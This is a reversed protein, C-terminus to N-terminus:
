KTPEVVLLPRVKSSQLLNRREKYWDPEPVDLTETSWRPTYGCQVLYQSYVKLRDAVFEGWSMNDLDIPGGLRLLSIQQMANHKCYGQDSESVASWRSIADDVVSELDAHEAQRLRAKYGNLMKFVWGEFAGGVHDNPDHNLATDGILLVANLITDFYGRLKESDVVMLPIEDNTSPMIDRGVLLKLPDMIENFQLSPLTALTGPLKDRWEALVSAQRNTYAQILADRISALEKMTAEDAQVSAPRPGFVEEVTEPWVHHSEKKGAIANPKMMDATGACQCKDAESRDSFCCMVAVALLAAAAVSVVVRIVNKKLSGM